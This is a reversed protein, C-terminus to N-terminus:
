RKIIDAMRKLHELDSLLYNSPKTNLDYLINNGHDPCRPSIFVEGLHKLTLSREHLKQYETELTSLISISNQICTYSLNYICENWTDKIFKPSAYPLIFNISKLLNREPYNGRWVTDGGILPYQLKENFWVKLNPIFYACDVDRNQIDMLEKGRGSLIGVIIKKVNIKEQKLIPDISKIRYGKNLLDDVLIVSKNFCRLMKIQNRINMYYPFASINFDKIDPTFMKETHLSKTVTNPVICGELISGFPVCMYKGLQRPHLQKTPMENIKCIKKILTQYLMDRDFSLVLQGPYLKTLSKQLSKRSEIIEKQVNINSKFPEKIITQLDLDLTCPNSMGVALIPNRKSKCPLKEFGQLILTEYLQEPIENDMINNFVAYTYDKALCFSLTETLIIQYINQLTSTKFSFIGDITVIRGVARERIYESINNDRFNNFLMSSRVWHIASFGLIKNSNKTDRLVIIRANLQKRHNKLQIKSKESNLFFQHCLKNILENDINEIVEIDLASTEVLKKYQPERRYLGYEYIYKQALPDILESIDRNKDIYSRIQSSSIDEYQPPLTLNIINNNIKKIANRYQENDNDSNMICKREFLIHPFNHISYKEVTKKYCSANLVVDSGVVIYVKSGDFLKKLKELDDSNAINVPLDDPYLYINLEEAISMEIIKRRLIHPQTKKSWSFEDVALYVDFGLDRIEKAIEKHSSSFPDFTGPFFAINTNKYLHMDDYFFLYDSIFKYIYSLSASNNLFLLETEEKKTLLTLIKKSILDFIEYKQKLNLKNSGFIEKGVVKFAEEKIQTNYSVLGNLLIGLMKIQRNRYIADDEKFFNSYKPYHQIVVGITKLLLLVIQQNAQKIKNNFDNILEDLEVPHLYLMIQGLYQPIYKTFHYGQIELARLLEITIDNRQDLSLFPIIKLLAEGAHNRVNEIASVKVLNCFHMATHLSNQQPNEIVKELLLEINIKKNVWNTATKLNKLFIDSINENDLKYNNYYKHVLNYSLNMEKSIKYKLFNEAPTDAHYADSIFIEEIKKYHKSEKSIRFLLSYLRDLASLKIRKNKSNLMRITFNFFNDVYEKSSKTLPIYKIAQLLYFQTKTDNDDVGQYYKLLVNSYKNNCDSDCNSFLSSIMIKFNYGIWERHNEIIKHDPYIFKKIYKDLLKSSSIEAQKINADKPIEKRYKEDFMAILKGILEACQKRIDEETHILLEYLFSLTILKQKQTLYTSYVEFVQLYGRLRKWNNESRALELISSLSSEDRLKYMLRINHDISLFKINEIIEKGNMLSYYKKETQISKHKIHVNIGLDIMYKEFDYLKSYVRRYRKEKENDLNDLKDLIIQFSDQLSYIHMHREKNSYKKNRVRFDSYILILSELSLNELELDWTSHNAAIHGIYFINHKTFWQDTYYYHFYPVKKLEEGKCGYKGIDHGAAAGSVRGLDVQIDLKNLQRAIHLSLFHVGSIHELTNHGTVEQSLKMMEHVYDKRFAEKFKEYENPNKLNNEEKSTLFILPYKDKNPNKNYINEFKIIIKLVKLFLLSSKNLDESLDVNVSRPFSKSLAFQFVYHLWDKPNKKNSLHEMMTKCLELVNKCSYNKSEVINNIKNNFENSEVISKIYGYESSYMPIFSLNLLTNSIENYLETSIKDDM